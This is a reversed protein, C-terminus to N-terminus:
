VIPIVVVVFRTLDKQRGATPEPHREKKGSIEGAAVNKGSRGNKVKGIGEGM